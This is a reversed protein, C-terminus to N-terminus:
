EMSTSSHKIHVFLDLSLSERRQGGNIAVCDCKHQENIACDLSSAIAHGQKSQQCVFRLCAYAFLYRTYTCKYSSSSRAEILVGACIARFLVRDRARNARLPLVYGDSVVISGRVDRKLESCSKYLPESVSVRSGGSIKRRIM